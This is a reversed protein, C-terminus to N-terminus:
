KLNNVTSEFDLKIVNASDLGVYYGYLATATVFTYKSEASVSPCYLIPFKFLNLPSIIEAASNKHVFYPGGDAPKRGPNGSKQRYTIGFGSFHVL